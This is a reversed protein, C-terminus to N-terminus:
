KITNKKIEFNYSIIKKIKYKDNQVFGVLKKIFILITLDASELLLIYFVPYIKINNLLELKYNIKSKKKKITFLNVKKYDM